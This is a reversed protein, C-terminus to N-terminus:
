RTWIFKHKGLKSGAFAKMLYRTFVMNSFMSILIGMGLVLAFGQVFGTSFWFLIAAVLLTTINGDRVSPWAREFARDIARGINQAEESIEEKLREFVLVNADVAMGISLILGAIGALSLTVPISKILFLFLALYVMLSVIAMAGSFKYIALLFLIVAVAAMWAARLSDALSEAGLTADVRQQSILKIPVPLAGANLNTALERSEELNFRGTIVANGGTIVENVVPTSLPFGDLYIAVIQGINRATIDEFIKAGDADFQLAVQLEGTQPHTVVSARDLYRGTLDTPRFCPDSGTVRGVLVIEEAPATECFLELEEQSIENEADPVFVQRLIAVQEESSRLERFELFPTQGIAEIALAFDEIGALEVILRQAEEGKQVQVVPESVGLFNVRREIADRLAIMAEGKDGEAINKLDAEYVLHIGGRLDLALSYEKEPFQGLNLWPIKSNVWGSARNWYNPYGFNAALFAVGLVFVVVIWVKARGNFM